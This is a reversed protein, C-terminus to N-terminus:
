NILIFSSAIGMGGAAASPGSSRCIERLASIEPGLKTIVKNLLLSKQTIEINSAKGPLTPTLTAFRQTLQRDFLDKELM